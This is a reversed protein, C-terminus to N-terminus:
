IGGLYMLVLQFLFVSVVFGLIAGVVVELFSHIKAEVRSEAVLLALIFSLATIRIDNAYLTISTAICFALASHGSPFGGQLHTGKKHFAKLLLVGITTILIAIITIHIPSHKIRIIGFEVTSSIRDFFIFYGVFISLMSAVLVAGAAADKVIKAKDHYNETVLDVLVEIATNFLECVIVFSVTLLVILFEAKTLNYVLSLILVLIASITHIKMNRENKITHLIGNIANNFSDILNKNKM